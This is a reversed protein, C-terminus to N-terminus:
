PQHKFTKADLLGQESPFRVKLVAVRNVGTKKAWYGWLDPTKITIKACDSSGIDRIKIAQYQDSSVFGEFIVEDNQLVAVKIPKLQRSQPVATIEIVSVRDGSSLVFASEPLLRYTNKEKELLWQFHGYSSGQLKQDKVISIPSYVLPIIVLIIGTWIIWLPIAKKKGDSDKKGILCLGLFQGMMLAQYQWLAVCNFFNVILAAIVAFGGAVAYSRLRDTNRPSFASILVAAFFGVFLILGPIGCEAFINGFINHSDHLHRLNQPMNKLYKETQDTTTIRYDGFGIGDIPRELGLAFGKKVLLSRDTNSGDKIWSEFKLPAVARQIAFSDSKCYLPYIAIRLLLFVVALIGFFGLVYKWNTKKWAFTIFVVVLAILSSRSFTSIVLIGSVAVVAWIWFNCKGENRAAHLFGLAAAGTMAAYCGLEHLGYFPAHLGWENTIKPFAFAVSLIVGVIVIIFQALLARILLQLKAEKHCGDHIIRFLLLMELLLNGGNLAQFDTMWLDGPVCASVWISNIISPTALGVAMKVIIMLGLCDGLFGSLSHSEPNEKQYLVSRVIWAISAAGFPVTAILPINLPRLLDIESVIPAIVLSAAIGLFPWRFEIFTIGAALVLVWATLEASCSFAATTVLRLNLVLMLLLFTGRTTTLIIDKSKSM